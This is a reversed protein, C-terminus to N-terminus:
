SKARLKKKEENRPNLIPGNITEFNASFPQM